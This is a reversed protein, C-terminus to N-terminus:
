KELYTTWVKEDARSRTTKQGKGKSERFTLVLPLAWTALPHNSLDSQSVLSLSRPLMPLKRPM